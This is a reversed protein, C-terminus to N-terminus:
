ICLLFNIFYVVWPCTPDGFFIYKEKDGGEATYWHAVPITQQDQLKGGLRKRSIIDVILIPWGLRKYISTGKPFIYKSQIAIIIWASAITLPIAFSVYQSLTTLATGNQPNIEVVNM